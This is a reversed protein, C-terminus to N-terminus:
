VLNSYIDPKLMFRTKSNIRYNYTVPLELEARQRPRLAVPRGSLRLIASPLALLAPPSPLPVWCRMRVRSLTVPSRLM